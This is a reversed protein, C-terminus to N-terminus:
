LDHSCCLLESIEQPKSNHHDADSDDSSKSNVKVTRKKHQLFLFKKAKTMVLDLYLHLNTHTQGLSVVDLASEFRKFAANKAKLRM